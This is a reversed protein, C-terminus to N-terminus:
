WYKLIIADLDEDFMARKLRRNITRAMTWEGIESTGDRIMVESAQWIKGLDLLRSVTLAENEALIYLTDGGWRNAPLKAINMLNDILQGLSIGKPDPAFISHSFIFGKWLQPHNVLDQLVIEANFENYCEAKCTLVAWFDQSSSLQNVIEQVRNLELVFIIV